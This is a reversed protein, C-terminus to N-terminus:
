QQGKLKHVRNTVAGDIGICYIDFTYTMGAKPYGAELCKSSAYMVVPIMVVCFLMALGLLTFLVLSFVDFFKDGLM